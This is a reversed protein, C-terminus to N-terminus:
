WWGARVIVIVSWLTFVTQVTLLHSLGPYSLRFLHLPVVICHL